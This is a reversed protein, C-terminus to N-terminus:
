KSNRKTRKMKRRAKSKRKSTKQSHPKRKKMILQRFLNRDKNKRSRGQGSQLPFVQLQKLTEPDLGELLSSNDSDRLSQVLQQPSTANQEQIKGKPSAEANQEQAKEKPSAAAAIPEPLNVKPSAQKPPSGVAQLLRKRFEAESVPKNANIAETTNTVETANTVKKPAKRANDKAQAQAKPKAQAKPTAQAKSKAKAKPKPKTAETIEVEKSPISQPKEPQLPLEEFFEQPIGEMWYEVGEQQETSPAQTQQETSPAQTNIDFRPLGETSVDWPYNNWGETSGSNPWGQTTPPPFNNRREVEPNNLTQKSKNYLATLANNIELDTPAFADFEVGQLDKPV